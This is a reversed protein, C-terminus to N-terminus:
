IPNGADHAKSPSQTMRMVLRRALQEFLTFTACSASLTTAVFASAAAVPHAVIFDHAHAEMARIIIQHLMYMSFSIEGLFVIPRASLAYSLAGRGIAFIFILLALVSFQGSQMLWEAFQPHTPSLHQYVPWASIVGAAALVCVAVEACTWLTASGRIGRHALHSYATAAVMGVLFEFTRAVPNIYLLGALVLLADDGNAPRIVPYILACLIIGGMACSLKLIWTRGLNRSLLPFLAYFALETSISWSVGNLSFYWDPHPVWSQLLFVNAAAIKWGPLAANTLILLLAISLLHMPWIRAIRASYFRRIETASRLEGYVLCLIFGSLVFFLSVGATFGQIGIAPWFTGNMHLVVIM